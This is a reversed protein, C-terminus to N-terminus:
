PTEWLPHIARHLLAGVDGRLADNTVLDAIGTFLTSTM